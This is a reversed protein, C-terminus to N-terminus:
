SRALLRRTAPVGLLLLVFWGPSGGGGDDGGGGNGTATQQSVSVVGSVINDTDDSEAETSAVTVTYGVTGLSLGTLGISLTSMGQAGLDTATCDIQQGSVTCSGVTWTATDPRIGADLTITATVDTAALISANQIAVNATASRDINVAVSSPTSVVLDVAPDVTVLHSDVNNSTVGDNTATVTAEFVAPGVGETSATVTVTEAGFGAITGINFTVTGAGETFTGQSAAAAIFSVNSPLAVDVSVGTADESGDNPIEFTLNIARGLLIDDPQGNSNVTVDVSALPVICAAADATARMVDKSCSSFEQNGNVSSAMIFQNNPEDPCSGGAEGDHEAGFNHGIEHAAILSDTTTGRRGESLGAGFRSNCLVGIYAIGVTSGDLNRGTFLHTLGRQSQSSNGARYSGLEGLLDGSDTTDTFPDNSADFVDVVPVTIQIGLESSYIGDVNNLRDLVDQQANARGDAFLSDAVAGIEIEEVAGEAQAMRLEGVMAQYMEAGTAPAPGLGAACSMTGPEVVMDALRFIVPETTSVASEGPREIALLESGDWILGAPVGNRTVIRVWSDPNGAIEGRYVGISPDIGARQEASLLNTNPQLELDFRQGLADFEMGAVDYLVATSRSVPGSSRLQLGRLPEFYQVSMGDMSAEQASATAIFVFFTAFLGLTKM